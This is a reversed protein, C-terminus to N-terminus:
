SPFILPAGGCIISHSASKNAQTRAPSTRMVQFTQFFICVTPIDKIKTHNRKLQVKHKIQKSKSIYACCTMNSSVVCKSCHQAHQDVSVWVGALVFHQRHITTGSYKGWLTHGYRDDVHQGGDHLQPIGQTGPAYRYMSFCREPQGFQM